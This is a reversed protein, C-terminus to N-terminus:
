SCTELALMQTIEAAASPKSFLFGQGFDCQQATLLALQEETEVGEAIVKLGLCHAMAITANVLERNAHDSSIENVFERDIKLVNFPFNRLYSLSSYGTGFDDMAISVGLNSLATLAEHIYSHGTMLVGETIELELSARMCGTQQLTQEIFPVLKPDRFQRPSLNVAMSFPRGLQRQWKALINLSETLVFEGIPVILGTQEAIPIFEMPAIEGLTPNHWRLLAEVGIIMANKLNVIPQFCLSFESRDLAGHMQEELLLRRSLDMNMQATFFSYTNRGQGKSHYMASDAKRLLELPNDGDNPYLSIGISVTLIMERDGIRFADRFQQLLTEAVPRADAADVLGGLLVIFEDGGLRGVTDGSRVGEQLRLAAENLLTDGTDHGLIDNIKKFDDLDLFLVAVLEKNHRAENIMQSLRDLALFRNPMDTLTDFHALHLIHEEQKKRATIDTALAFIVPQGFWTGLTLRIESPFVTGDARQGWFEFTLPTGSFARALQPALVDLDNLDPASIDQQTKGSFWERPQGYMRAAGENVTIFHGDKTQVFVGEQLNNFLSRFSYESQRLKEEDERYKTIDHGIGLVGIIRGHEDRMPTKTTELLERHGDNAFTIWEENVTPSSQQMAQRDHASFSDATAHDIFAYDTHGLIEAEPADFLLEFRHNCALFIGDPDKLWVLDPLTQILTKFFGRQQSLSQESRLLQAHAMKGRITAALAGLVPRLGNLMRTSFLEQQAAQMLLVGTQSFPYIAFTPSPDDIIRNSAPHKGDSQHIIRVSADGSPDLAQHIISAFYDADPMHPLAELPRLEQSDTDQWWLSAGTLNYRSILVRLFNRYTETADLRQGISLALEYLRLLDETVSPEIKHMDM